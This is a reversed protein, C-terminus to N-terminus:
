QQTLHDPQADVIKQWWEKLLFEFLEMDRQQWHFVIQMLRTDPKMPEEHIYFRQLMSAQYAAHEGCNTYSLVDNINGYKFIKNAAVKAIGLFKNNLLVELVNGVAYKEEDFLRVDMFYNPFLKGHKNGSFKIQQM